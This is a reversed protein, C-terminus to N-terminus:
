LKRDALIVRFDCYWTCFFAGFAARIFVFPRGSLVVTKDAGSKFISVFCGIFSVGVLLFYGGLIGFNVLEENSLHDLKLM